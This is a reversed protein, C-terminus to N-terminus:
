LPRTYENTNREVPYENLPVRGTCNQWYLESRLYFETTRRPIGCRRFFYLNTKLPEIDM